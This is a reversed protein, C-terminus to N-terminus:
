HKLILYDYVNDSGDGVGVISSLLTGCCWWSFQVCWM